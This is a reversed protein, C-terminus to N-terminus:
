KAQYPHNMDPWSAYIQKRVEKKLHVVQQIMMTRELKTPVDKRLKKRRKITVLSRKRKSCNRLEALTSGSNRM